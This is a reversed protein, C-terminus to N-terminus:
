RGTAEYILMRVAHYVPYAANLLAPCKLIMLYATKRRLDMSGLGLDRGMAIIEARMSDLFGSSLEASKGSYRVYNVLMGSFTSQQARKLQEFFFVAPTNARIYEEFHQRALRIDRLNAESVTNTISGPRRLHYYLPQDLVLVSRCIDFVRFMIDMDEYNHGDPFRVDEWLRRRYLKNWVSVNITSDALARLAENRKYMGAKGAPWTMEKRIHAAPKDADTVTYKCVVIDANEREMAEAMAKIYDPHYSDDSDLFAVADGSMMDLGANRASSLGRNEQHVVKIRDDRRALEDCIVGSGDTSGDDIVIIELHSYTQRIVSELATELYPRVNFVPIIISILGSGSVPM